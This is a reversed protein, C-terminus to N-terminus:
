RGSHTGLWRMAGRERESEAAFLKIGHWLNSRNRRRESWLLFTLYYYSPYDARLSVMRVHLTFQALQIVSQSGVWQL